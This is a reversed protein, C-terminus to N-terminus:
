NRTTRLRERVTFVCVALLFLAVALGVYWWPGASLDSAPGTTVCFHDRVTGGCVQTATWGAIAGAVAALCGLIVLVGAFTLAVRVIVRM